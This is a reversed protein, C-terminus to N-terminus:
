TTALRQGQSYIPRHRGGPVTNHPNHPAQGGRRPEPQRLLVAAVSRGLCVKIEQLKSAAFDLTMTGAGETGPLSEEQQAPPWRTVASQDEEEERPSVLGM